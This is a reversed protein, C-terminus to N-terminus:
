IIQCFAGTHAPKFKGLIMTLRTLSSDVNRLCCLLPM